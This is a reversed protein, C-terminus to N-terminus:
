SHTAEPRKVNSFCERKIIRAALLLCEAMEDIYYGHYGIGKEGADGLIEVTVQLTPNGSESQLAISLRSNSSELIIVNAPPVTERAKQPVSEHQMMRKDM